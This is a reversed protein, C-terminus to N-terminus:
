ITKRAAKISNENNMGPLFYYLYVPNMCTVREGPLSCFLGLLLADRGGAGEFEAEGRRKERKCLLLQILILWKGHSNVHL